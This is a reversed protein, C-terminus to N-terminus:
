STFIVRNKPSQKVSDLRVAKSEGTITSNQSM